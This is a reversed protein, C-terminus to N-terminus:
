VAVEERGMNEVVRSGERGVKRGGERVAEM